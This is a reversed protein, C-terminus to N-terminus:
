VLVEFRKRIVKLLKNSKKAYPLYPEMVVSPPGENYSLLELLTLNYFAAIQELTEVKIKSEDTEYSQYTSYALGLKDALEEISLRDRHNLRLARLIEHVKM